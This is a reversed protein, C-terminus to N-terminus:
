EGDGGGDANGGADEDGAASGVRAYLSVYLAAASLEFTNGASGLLGGAPLPGIQGKSALTVVAVGFREVYTKRDADARAEGYLFEGRESDVVVVGGAMRMGEMAGSAGELGLRRFQLGLEHGATQESRMQFQVRSGLRVAAGDVGVSGRGSDFGVVKRVLMEAGASGGGRDKKGEGGGKGGQGSVASLALDTVSPVEVGLLLYKTAERREEQSIVDMRGWMDLLVMPAAEAAGATGVERVKCIETGDRVETVEMVPGVGRAGQAVTVDVAVDRSAFALGVVGSDVIGDAGFLYVRDLAHARGAMAGFKRVGPYAFDLGSLLEGMADFEPDHLLFLQLNGAGGGNGGDPAWAPVEAPAVGVFEHWQKQKWDLDFADRGAAHFGKMITGEPFSALAVSVTYADKATGYAATTSGFVVLESGLTRRMALTTKLTPLVRRVEDDATLEGTSQVFVLALQARTQQRELTSSARAAAEKVGAVVKDACSHGVAWVFEGEPADSGPKEGASAEPTVCVPTRARRSVRRSPGLAREARGSVRTRALRLERVPLFFGSCPVFSTVM